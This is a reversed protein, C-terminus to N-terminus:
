DDDRQPPKQKVLGFIRLGGVGILSAGLLYLTMATAFSLVAWAKYAYGPRRLIILYSLGCIVLGLLIAALLGYKFEEKPTPMALLLGVVLYLYLLVAVDGKFIARGLAKWVLKTTKLFADVLFHASKHIVQEANKAKVPLKGRYGIRSECAWAIVILLSLALMYTILNVLMVRWWGATRINYGVLDTDDGFPAFEKIRTGTVGCAIAKTIAFALFAPMFILRCAQSRTIPGYLCGLAFSIMFFIVIWAAYAM